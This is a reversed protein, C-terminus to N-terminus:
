IMTEHLDSLAKSITLGIQRRAAAYNKYCRISANRDRESVIKKDVAININLCSRYMVYNCKNTTPYKASVHWTDIFGRQM